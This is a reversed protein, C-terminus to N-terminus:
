STGCSAEPKLCVARAERARMFCTTMNGVIAQREQATRDQLLSKRREAVFEIITRSLEEISDVVWREESREEAGVFSGRGRPDEARRAQSKETQERAERFAQFIRCPDAPESNSPRRDEPSEGASAEAPRDGTEGQAAREPATMDIDASTSAAAAGADATPPEAGAVVSEANSENLTTMEVDNPSAVGKHGEPREIEPNEGSNTSPNRYISSDCPVDFTDVGQIMIQERIQERYVRHEEYSGIMNELYHCTPERGKTGFQQNLFVQHETFEFGTPEIL